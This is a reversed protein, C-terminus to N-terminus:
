LSVSKAKADEQPSPRCPQIRPAGSRGIQLQSRPGPRTNMLAFVSMLHGCVPRVAGQPQAQLERIGRQTGTAEHRLSAPQHCGSETRKFHM